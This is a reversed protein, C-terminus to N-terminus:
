DETKLAAIEIKLNEISKVHWRKVGAEKAELRVADDDTLVEDTQVTEVAPEPEVVTQVAEAVTEAVPSAELAALRDIIQNIATFAARLRTNFPILNALSRIPQFILKQM